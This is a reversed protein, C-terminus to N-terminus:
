DHNFNKISSCGRNIVLVEHAAGATAVPLRQSVSLHEQRQLVDTSRRGGSLLPVSPEAPNNGLSIDLLASLDRKLPL